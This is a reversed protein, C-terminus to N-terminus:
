HLLATTSKYGCSKLNKASKSGCFVLNQCCCGQTMLLGLTGTSGSTAIVGLRIEPEQVAVVIRDLLGGKGHGVPEVWGQGVSFQRVKELLHVSFVICRFSTGLWAQAGAFCSDALHKAACLSSTKPLRRLVKLVTNRLSQSM